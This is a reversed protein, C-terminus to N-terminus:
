IQKTIIRYTWSLPLRKEIKKQNKNQIKFNKRKDSTLIYIQFWLLIQIPIAYPMQWKMGMNKNANISNWHIYTHIIKSLSYTIIQFIKQIVYCHQRCYHDRNSYLHQYNFLFIRTFNKPFEAFIKWVFDNRENERPSFWTFFRVFDIVFFILYVDTDFYSYNM